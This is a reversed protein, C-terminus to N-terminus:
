AAKGRRHADGANRSAFGASDADILWVCHGVRMSAAKALLAAHVDWGRGVDGGEDHEHVLVEEVVAATAERIQAGGAILLVAADVLTARMAAMGHSAIIGRIRGDISAEVLQRRHAAARDARREMADAQAIANRALHSQVADGSGGQMTTM